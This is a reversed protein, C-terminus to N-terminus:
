EAGKKKMVYQVRCRQAISLKAKTLECVDLEFLSPYKKILTLAARYNPSGKDGLFAQGAAEYLALIRKQSESTPKVKM